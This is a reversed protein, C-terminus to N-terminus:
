QLRLWRALKDLPPEDFDSWSENIVCDNRDFTASILGGEGSWVFFRRGDAMQFAKFESGLNGMVEQVEELTMGEKIRNFNAKTVGPAATAMFDKVILLGTVLVLITAVVLSFAVIRRKTM